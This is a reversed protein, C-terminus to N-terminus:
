PSEEAEESPVSPPAVPAVAAGMPVSKSESRYSAEGMHLEGPYDITAFFAIGAFFYCLMAGVAFGASRSFTCGNDDCFASGFVVFTCGQIIVMVISM